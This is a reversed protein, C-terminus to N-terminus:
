RGLCLRGVPEALLRAFKAAGPVSFHGNDVFDAEQFLDWDPDLVTIGADAGLKVLAAHFGRQIAVVDRDRVLPFWGYFGDGGFHPANLIQTVFIPTIGAERNLAAINRVNRLYVRLLREDIGARAQEKPYNPATRVTDFGVHILRELLGGIASVGLVSTARANLNDIQSVLHFDAYGSDLGPLFSNRIDNWGVYYIACRVAHQDRNVYFAAQIVHEASSYGPVGLNLVNARGELLQELRDPWTEGNRVGLDYTSSGGLALVTPRAADVPASRRRGQADHVYRSDRYDPRPVGQLTPHWMFRSASINQPMFSRGIGAKSLRQTLLAFSVDLAVCLLLVWALRYRRMLACGIVALGAAMLIVLYYFRFSGASLRGNALTVALILGFAVAVVGGFALALVRNFDRPTRSSPEGTM